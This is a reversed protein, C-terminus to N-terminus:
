ASEKKGLCWRECGGLAKSKVALRLKPAREEREREYDCSGFGPVHFVFM